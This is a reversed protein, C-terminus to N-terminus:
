LLVEEFAYAIAQEITMTEGHAWAEEFVRDGLGTRVAALSYGHVPSTTRHLSAGIADCITQAAAL